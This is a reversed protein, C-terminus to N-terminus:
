SKLIYAKEDEEKKVNKEPLVVWEQKFVTNAIYALLAPAQRADVKFKSEMVVLAELVDLNFTNYSTRVRIKPFENKTKPTDNEATKEGSRTVRGTDLDTHLVKRAKKPPTFLGDEAMELSSEQETHIENPESSACSGQDAEKMSKLKQKDDHQKQERKKALDIARHLKSRRKNALQLWQKDTSGNWRKRTCIGTKEDPVCNDKYIEEEEEGPTVDYEAICQEIVETNDAKIDFGNQLAKLLSLHERQWKEKRKSVNTFRHKTFWSLVKTLKKVVGIQSMPPDNIFIWIYRLEEALEAIVIENKNPLRLPKQSLMTLYRNFVYQQTPLQQLVNLNLRDEKRFITGELNFLIDDKRTEM